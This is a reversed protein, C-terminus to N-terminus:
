ENEEIEVEKLPIGCLESIKKQVDIILEAKRLREKLRRNERELEKLKKDSDKSKKKKPGRKKPSLGELAGKQRQWTWTAINSYYIGERRLLAGLEGAELGEAEKLIKLKYDATFKRRRPKELVEPDPVSVPLINTLVKGNGKVKGNGRVTTKKGM